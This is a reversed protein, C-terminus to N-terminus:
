INWKYILKNSQQFTNDPSKLTKLFKLDRLFYGHLMMGLEINKLIKVQTSNESSLTKRELLLRTAKCRKLLQIWKIKYIATKTQFLSTAIESQTLQRIGGIALYLLPKDQVEKCYHHQYSYIQDHWQRSDQQNDDWRKAEIIIFYDNTEIFVDPEIFRNNDKILQDKIESTNWHPWFDVQIVEGISEPLDLNHHNATRLINWFLDSPLLLLYDLVAATLSDEKEKHGEKFKGKLFANIM